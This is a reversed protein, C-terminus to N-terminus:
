GPSSCARRHRVAAHRVPRLRRRRLHGRGAHHQGDAGPRRAAHLQRADLQGRREVRRDHRDRVSRRTPSASASRRAKWTAAPSCRARRRISMASRSAPIATRSPGTAPRWASWSCCRGHRRLDGLGAAPRGVMRGFTYTLAASIALICWCRSSTPSRTRTRSRIRRTPTSSAAATPASSSSPMRRRSRGRRSSRSPAKSRPRKAHLRRPEAARGASSAGARRRDLAAAPRLAHLPDSRGLLQRHDARLAARLRPDARHRARHRRGRSVFNQVTLGAMQTLYSM